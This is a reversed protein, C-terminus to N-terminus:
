SPMEALTFYFTAGRDVASDAWIRGGHRHVIRQVTALGVGTGPFETMAHLRQFAGFLRDAHAPDFGAGDDRVFYASAGNLHTEGFEICASERKSTFKWANGLLNELVNQLLGPDAVTELGDEIKFQVRREPQTKQIEAVISCALASIDLRKMHMESRTIRSLNLLDDILVGMRQTAVRIRNLHDKGQDDLRDACDELLAQSFGDISRLPARLDHSVSYSFSELEKNAAALEANSRALDSRHRELADEARKRETIDSLIGTFFVGERTKWSSLSVELPFETADKRRGALEVTKGIVRAEGTRLFRGLGQRHADRFREPMLVTLSQGIIEESSYSFIQEAVRNFYIINGQSDASLIADGASAALNRFKEESAELEEAIRKRNIIEQRLQDNADTLEATREAIRRELSENLERIQEEARKRATMDWCVGTLRVAKGDEDRYLKGRSGLVRISGDPWVVRFETDYSADKEVSEAVERAAREREDPHVLSLFDEYKGPFTNPKLGFLPHIYDDWVVKNNPVDWSWTGVGSSKLALNLHEQTERLALDRQQIQLLMENFSEVLTAVEDKGGPNDARVSYNKDTSIIRAIEALHVIPEAIARRFGSSILLAAVLCASLVVAVIAAYRQLRNVLEKTDSQILVSGAPKGQFVIQRALVLQGDKFWHVETQGRPIEPLLAFQSKQNRWYGVFPQGEPTYIEASLINPAAKLASLTTEASHSDNFVLASVSNSGIIQAQISLSRVMAARFTIADYAVFAACALLLAVSSVLMNMWTLKKSISYDRVKFM